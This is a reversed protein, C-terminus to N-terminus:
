GAKRATRRMKELEAVQEPTLPAARGRGARGGALTVKISNDTIGAGGFGNVVARADDFAWGERGMWRIVTSSPHGLVYLRVAGRGDTRPAVTMRKRTIAALTSSLKAESERVLRGITLTGDGLYDSYKHVKKKILSLENSLREVQDNRSRVRLKSVENDFDRLSKELGASVAASVVARANDTATMPFRHLRGGLAAVFARLGDAFRLRAQPIFCLRHGLGPVPFLGVHCDILHIIFKSLTDGNKTPATVFNQFQAAKLAGNVEKRPYAKQDVEWSVLEGLSDGPTTDVSNKNNSM